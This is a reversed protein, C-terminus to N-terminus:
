NIQNTYIYFDQDVKLEKMDIKLKKIEETPYIFELKGDKNYIEVPMQFGAVVNTWRYSLVGNKLSYE